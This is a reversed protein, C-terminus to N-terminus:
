SLNFPLTYTFANNTVPPNPADITTVVTVIILQPSANGGFGYLRTPTFNTDFTPTFSAGNDTVLIPKYDSPLPQGTSKNILPLYWNGGGADILDTDNYIIDMATGGDIIYTTNPIIVSPDITYPKAFSGIIQMMCAYLASTKSDNISANVRWQLAKIVRRLSAVDKTNGCGSKMKVLIADLTQLYYLKAYGLDTSITSLEM